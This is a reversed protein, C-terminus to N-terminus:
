NADFGEFKGANQVQLGRMREKGWLISTDWLEAGELLIAM